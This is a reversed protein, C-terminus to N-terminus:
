PTDIFVRRAEDLFWPKLRRVTKGLIAHEGNNALELWKGYSVRHALGWWIRDHNMGAFGKLTRVAITTRNTWFQGEGQAMGQDEQASQQAIGGWEKCLAFLAMRRRDARARFNKDAYATDIEIKFYDKAM